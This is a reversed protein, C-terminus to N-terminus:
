REGRGKKIAASWGCNACTLTYERFPAGVISVDSSRIFEKTPAVMAGEAAPWEMIVPTTVRLLTFCSPCTHNM